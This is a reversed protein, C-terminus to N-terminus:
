FKSLLRLKIEIIPSQGWKAWGRHIFMNGGIDMWDHQYTLSHTIKNLFPTEQIIEISNAWLQFADESFKSSPNLQKLFVSLCIRLPYRATHHFLIQHM